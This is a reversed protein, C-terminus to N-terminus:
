VKPFGLYLENYYPYFYNELIRLSTLQNEHPSYCLIFFLKNHKKM